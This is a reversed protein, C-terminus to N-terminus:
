EGIPDISTETRTSGVVTVFRIVMVGRGMSLEDGDHLQARGNIREGHLFTGNKSGLDAVTASAGRVVIRAHHRSVWESDIRVDV